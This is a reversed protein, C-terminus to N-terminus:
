LEQSTEWSPCLALAHSPCWNEKKILWLLATQIQCRSALPLSFCLSCVATCATVHKRRLGNLFKLVYSITSISFTTFTSNCSCCLWKNVMWAWGTEILQNGEKCLDYQYQAPMLGLLLKCLRHYIRYKGCIWSIGNLHIFFAYQTRCYTTDLSHTWPGLSDVKEIVSKGKAKRKPRSQPQDVYRSDNQKRKCNNFWNQILVVYWVLWQVPDRICQGLYASMKVQIETVATVPTIKSSEVSHPTQRMLRPAQELTRLDRTYM